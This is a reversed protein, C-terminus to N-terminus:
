QPTRLLTHAEGLAKNILTKTVPLDVQKLQELAQGLTAVIETLGQQEKEPLASAGNLFSGGTFGLAALQEPSLGMLTDARVLQERTREDLTHLIRGVQAMRGEQSFKVEIRRVDPAEDPRAFRKAAEQEREWIYDAAMPDTYIIEDGRTEGSHLTKVIKTGPKNNGM